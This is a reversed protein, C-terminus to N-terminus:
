ICIDRLVNCTCLVIPVPFSISSDVKNGNASSITISHSAFELLLNRAIDLSSLATKVLLCYLVFFLDYNEPLSSFDFPM